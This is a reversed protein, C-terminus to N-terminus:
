EQNPNNLAHSMLLKLAKECSIKLGISSVVLRLFRLITKGARKRHLRFVAASRKKFRMCLIVLGAARRRVHQDRKETRMLEVEQLAEDPANAAENSDVRLEMLCETQMNTTTPKRPQPPLNKHSCTPQRKVHWLFPPQHDFDFNCGKM